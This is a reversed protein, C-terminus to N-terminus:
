NIEGFHRFHIFATVGEFWSVIPYADLFIEPNPNHRLELNLFFAQTAIGGLEINGSELKSCWSAHEPMSLKSEM